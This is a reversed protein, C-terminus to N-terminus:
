MIIKLLLTHDSYIVHIMVYRFCVARVGWHQWARKEVLFLRPKLSPEDRGPVPVTNCITEASKTCTGM